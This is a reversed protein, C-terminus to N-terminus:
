PLIDRFSPIGAFIFFFVRPREWTNPSPNLRRPHALLVIQGVVNAAGAWDACTEPAMASRSTAAAYKGCSVAVEFGTRMWVCDPDLSPHGRMKSAPM